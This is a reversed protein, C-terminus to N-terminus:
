ALIEGSSSSSLQSTQGRSLPEGPSHPRSLSSQAHSSPELSDADSKISLNSGRRTHGRPARPEVAKMWLEQRKTVEDEKPFFFEQICCLGEDTQALQALASSSLAPLQEIHPTPVEFPVFPNKGASKVLQAQRASALGAASHM